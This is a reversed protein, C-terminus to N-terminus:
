GSCRASRPPTRACEMGQTVGRSLPVCATTTAQMRAMEEDPGSVTACNEGGGYRICVVCEVSTETATVYLMAVLFIAAIVVGALIRM